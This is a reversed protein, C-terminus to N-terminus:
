RNLLELSIKLLRCKILVHLEHHDIEVVQRRLKEDHNQICKLAEFEIAQGEDEAVPIAQLLPVTAEYCGDTLLVRIQAM